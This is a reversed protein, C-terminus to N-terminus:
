ANPIGSGDTGEGTVLITLLHETGDDTAYTFTTAATQGDNLAAFDNNGANDYVSFDIRGDAHIIISGGDTGEVYTETNPAGNVTAVTGGYPAGNPGDNSLVNFEFGDAGTDFVGPPNDGEGETVTFTDDGTGPGAPGGDDFAPASGGLKLSGTRSGDEVGVSTLRVGFDQLSVDALTLPQDDHSLTFTTSRIDDAGIGATGFQVGGDFRGLDRIVEGNMNTYSDVKTVGDADLAVGTVDAGSVRLGSTLSDDSLDFFLANLDGIQGTADLVEVTFRLAGDVETITVSVDVPGHIIFTGTAM